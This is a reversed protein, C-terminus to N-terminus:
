KRVCCLFVSLLKLFNIVFWWRGSFFALSYNGVLNGDQIALCEPVLKSVVVSCFSELSQLISGHCIVVLSYFLSKLLVTLHLNLFVDDVGVVEFQGLAHGRLCFGFNDHCVCHILSPLCVWMKM